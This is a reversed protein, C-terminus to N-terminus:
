KIVKFYESYLPEFGDKKMVKQDSKNFTYVRSKLWKIGREEAIKEAYENLEHM